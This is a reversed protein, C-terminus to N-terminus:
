LPAHLLWCLAWFLGGCIWWPFDVIICPSSHLQQFPFSFSFFNTHSKTRPPFLRLRLFSFALAVSRFHLVRMCCYLDSSLGVKPFIKRVHWFEKIQLLFFFLPKVRWSKKLLEWPLKPGKMKNKVPRSFLMFVVSYSNFLLHCLSLVNIILSMQTFMHLNLRWENSIFQFRCSQLPLARAPFMLICSLSLLGTLYVHIYVHCM